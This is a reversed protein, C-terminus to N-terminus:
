SRRRFAITRAEPLRGMNPVKLEMPQASRIAATLVGPRVTLARPHGLAGIQSLGMLARLNRDTLVHRSRAAVVMIMVMIKMELLRAIHKAAMPVNRRAVPVHPLAPVRIQNPGM